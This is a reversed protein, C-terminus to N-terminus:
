TSLATNQVSAGPAKLLPTCPFSFVPKAALFKGLALHSLALAISLPSLIVNSRDNEQQVERLLDISFKMLGSALRQSKKWTIDCSQNDEDEESSLVEGAPEEGHCNGAGARATDEPSEDNKIGEPTTPFPSTHGYTEGWTDSLKADPLAGPLASAVEGDGKLDQPSVLLTSCHSLLLM